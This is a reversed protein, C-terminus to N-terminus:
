RNVCSLSRQPLNQCQKYLCIFTRPIHLYRLKPWSPTLKKLLLQFPPRALTQTNNWAMEGWKWPHSCLVKRRLLLNNKGTPLFCPPILTQTDHAKQTFLKNKKYRKSNINNSSSIKEWQQEWYITRKEVRTKGGKQRWNEVGDQWLPFPLTLPSPALPLTTQLRPPLVANLVVM